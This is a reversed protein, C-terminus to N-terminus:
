DEKNEENEEVVELSDLRHLIMGLVIPIFAAYLIVVTQLQIKGFVVHLVLFLMMMFCYFM